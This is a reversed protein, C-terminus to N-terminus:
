IPLATLYEKARRERSLIVPHGKKYLTPGLFWAKELMSFVERRDMNFYDAKLYHRLLLDAYSFAFTEYLEEDLLVEEVSFGSLHPFHKKVDKIAVPTLALPGYAKRGSHMYYPRVEKGSAELYNIGKRLYRWLGTKMYIEANARDNRAVSPLSAIGSKSLHLNQAPSSGAGNLDEVKLNPALVAMGAACILAIADKYFIKVLYGNFM